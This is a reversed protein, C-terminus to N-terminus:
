PKIGDLAAVTSTLIATVQEPTTAESVAKKGAIRLIEIAPGIQEEWLSSLFLINQACEQASKGTATAEAAIYPPPTGNFNAEAFNRAEQAKRLYTAQQGPVDTIFRLRVAGAMKDIQDLADAAVEEYGKTRQWRGELFRWTGETPPPGAVVTMGPEYPVLGLYQGQEDVVHAVVSDNM